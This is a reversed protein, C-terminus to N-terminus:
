KKAGLKGTERGKGRRGSLPADIKDGSPFKCRQCGSSAFKFSSMEDHTVHCFYEM